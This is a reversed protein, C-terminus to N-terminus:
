VPGLAETLTSLGPSWVGYRVRVRAFPYPILTRDWSRLRFGPAEIRGWVVPVNLRKALAEAGPHARGAPGRPGDVALAPSAGAALTAILARLAAVSGRSSSGRVVPYGLAGLATAVIEGDGSLSALGVLSPRGPGPRHLAIM